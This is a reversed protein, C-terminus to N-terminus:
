LRNFVQATTIKPSNQRRYYYTSSSDTENDFAENVLDVIEVIDEDEAYRFDLRIASSM